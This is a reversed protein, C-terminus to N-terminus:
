LHIETGIQQKTNCTNLNKAHCIIVKEVGEKKANFANDLKPIMGKNIIGAAKDAQYQTYQLNETVSNEDEIDKLVGNKEFCYILNVTFNECLSVAIEKAMTDANTNLLQGTNDATIPAFIPTLNQNILAEIIGNDVMKVDGVYGYDITSITRKEAMVISADAGTLGISLCIKSNLQAVINKNILGAYVMTVLDITPKDTIRRGEVMNTEIGLKNALTTAIKGGGHVLIKPLKITAFDSLFTDLSTPNDIINGGIKIIYLVPKDKKIDM